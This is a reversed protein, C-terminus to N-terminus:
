KHIFYIHADQLGHFVVYSVGGGGGAAGGIAHAAGGRLLVLKASESASIQWFWKGALYERHYLENIVAGFSARNEPVAV